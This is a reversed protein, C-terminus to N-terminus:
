ERKQPKGFVKEGEAKLTKVFVDKAGGPAFFGKIFDLLLEKSQANAKMLEALKPHCNECILNKVPTLQTSCNHCKLKWIPLDGQNM